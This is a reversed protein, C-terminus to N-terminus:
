FLCRNDSILGHPYSCTNVINNNCLHKYKFEFFFTQKNYKEFRYSRATTFM